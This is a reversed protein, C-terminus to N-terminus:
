KKFIVITSQESTKIGILEPYEMLEKLIFKWVVEQSRIYWHHPKDVVVGNTFLDTCIQEVMERTMVKAGKM